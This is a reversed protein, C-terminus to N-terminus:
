EDIVKLVKSFQCSNVKLGGTLSKLGRFCGRGSSVSSM